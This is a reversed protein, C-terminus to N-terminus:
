QYAANLNGTKKKNNSSQVTEQHVSATESLTTLLTNWNNQGNKLTEALINLGVIKIQETRIQGKFLPLIHIGIDAQDLRLISHESFSPPNKLVIDNIELSLQPFFTWNMAGQITVNQGTAKYIAKEVPNKLNNPDIWMLLAIAGLIIVFIVSCFIILVSKILKGM